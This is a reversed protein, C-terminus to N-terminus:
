RARVTVPRSREPRGALRAEFTHDGPQVPWRVEYPWGAVAFPEGDVWFVVPEGPPDVSAALRLTSRDAPVDPDRAVHAGDEPSLVAVAVPADRRVPALPARPLGRRTIWPGYRAPLDVVVRGDHQTHAACDHVPAEGSPFWEQRPADCLPTALAGTLACVAHSSWGAPDPFAVAPGDHLEALLRDALVGAARHGSLGRMPRWDPHGVWVVVLHADDWAVTWADRFDPSTGTKMAVPFPLEGASGRPFTPQRAVPDSLWLTVLRAHDASIVPQSPEQAGEVWVLDRLEGDNALAGYARALDVAQVPMGGIAIGLGWHDARGTGDHLGLQGWFRYLEDLGVREALAVAPVNRSNALAARPLMPGLFDDDANRIGQPGHALDDLVDGPALVGRDLALAYLLPKLASGPTRPTRTFDLSGAQTGFFGTSGVAARVALTRRDLVLASAQGAGRSSWGHVADLLVAEVHEQLDLDLTTVLEPGGELAMADLALVPLLTAEPRMPRAGPRLERLEERARAHTDADITGDLVLRELVRDAREIARARGRPDYPNMLGPAQPLAALLSAEAWTLDALPKRFLRRAAYRVGHVNNGYPARQLYAALVADRGHRDVLLLATVAEVAKRPWTRPGPDQLRAVQMPITSAGSIREGSRANQALARGVAWPDVGPHADFRADEIALTAAVIREPLCPDGDDRLPDADACRHTGAPWFGLREDPGVDIEGLFRGKRDYLMRTPEPPRLDSRSWALAVLGIWALGFVVLAGGLGRRLATRM